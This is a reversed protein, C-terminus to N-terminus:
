QILHIRKGEIKRRTQKETEPVVSSNLFKYELGNNPNFLKPHLEFTVLPM